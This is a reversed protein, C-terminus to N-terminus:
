GVLESDVSVMCVQLVISVWLLKALSDRPDQSFQGVVVEDQHMFQADCIMSVM